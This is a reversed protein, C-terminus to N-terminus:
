RIEEKGGNRGHARGDVPGGDPLTAPPATTAGRLLPPTLTTAPGRQYLAAPRGTDPIRKTGTPM